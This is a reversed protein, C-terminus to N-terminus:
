KRPTLVRVNGGGGLRRKRAAEFRRKLGPEDLRRDIHEDLAERIVEIQSCNYSAACFDKLKGALPEGLKLRADNSQKPMFTGQPVNENGRL